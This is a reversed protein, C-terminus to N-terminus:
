APQKKGTQFWAFVLLALGVLLSAIGHKVHHHGSGAEHGPLWSPLSHAPEAWYVVALVVLALGALVALGALLPSRIKM